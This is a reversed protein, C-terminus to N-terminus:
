EVVVKHVQTIGNSIVAFVYTGSSNLNTTYKSQDISGLKKREILKGDMQYVYVEVDTKNKFNFDITINEGVKSPNPYVNVDGKEFVFESTSKSAYAITFTDESSIQSGNLSFDVIGDAKALGISIPTSFDNNKYMVLAQDKLAGQLNQTNISFVFDLHDANTIQFAFSKDIVSHTGKNVVSWRGENAGVFVYQHNALSATSLTYLDQVSNTTSTTNLNYYDNRGLATVQHNFSQNNWLYGVQEDYYNASEILSIGYKLSLYTQIKQHDQLSFEKNVYILEYVYTQDPEEVLQLFQRDSAVPYTFGQKVIAGTKIKEKRAVEDFYNINQTTMTQKYCSFNFDLLDKNEQDLSKFVVYYNSHDKGIPATLVTRDNKEIPAHGNLASSEKSVKTSHVWFNAEESFSKNQANTAISVFAIGLLLLRKKM